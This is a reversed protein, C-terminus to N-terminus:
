TAGCMNTLRISLEQCHVDLVLCARLWKYKRGKKGAYVAYMKSGSSRALRCHHKQRSTHLQIERCLTVFTAPPLTANMTSKSMHLPLLNYACVQM